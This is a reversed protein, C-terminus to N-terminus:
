KHSSAFANGTVFEKTHVIFTKFWIMAIICNVKILEPEERVHSVGISQMYGICGNM